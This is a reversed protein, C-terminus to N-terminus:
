TRSMIVEVLRAPRIVGIPLPWRVPVCLDATHSREGRGTKHVEVRFEGSRASGM